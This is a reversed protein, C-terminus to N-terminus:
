ESFTKGFHYCSFEQQIFCMMLQQYLVAKRTDLLAAFPLGDGNSHRYRNRQRSQQHKSANLSSM